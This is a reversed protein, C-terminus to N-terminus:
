PAKSKQVTITVWRNKQRGEPNDSRDPNKNEAVPKSESLRKTTINDASIGKGKVFWNKVSDARKKSLALNAKPSGKADTHGEILVKSEPFAAIVAAVKELGEKGEPRLESKDFDFLVDGELNMTIASGSEQLALDKKAAELAAERRQLDLEKKELELRKQKLELEEKQLEKKPSTEQAVCLAPFSIFVFLAIAASIARSFIPLITTM